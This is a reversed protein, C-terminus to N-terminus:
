RKPCQKHKLRTFEITQYVTVTEDDWIRFNCRDCVDDHEYGALKRFRAKARDLSTPGRKENEKTM